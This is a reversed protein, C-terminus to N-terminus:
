VVKGGLEAGQETWGVQISKGTGPQMFHCMVKIHCGYLVSHWWFAFVLLVDDRPRQQKKKKKRRIKIKQFFCQHLSGSVASPDIIMKAALSCRLFDNLWSLMILFFFLTGTTKWNCDLLQQSM